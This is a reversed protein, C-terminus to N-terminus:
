TTHRKGNAQMSARQLIFGPTFQWHFDKQWLIEEGDIRKIYRGSYGSDHSYMPWELSSVNFPSGVEWVYISSRQKRGETEIDMDYMSSAVVEVIGDNDIDAISPSAQADVETVKPFGNIMSGDINWAYVGGLGPQKGDPTMIGNGASVVVDLSGDCNVDGIAPSHYDNWITEQPWGPLINGQFDFIYTKPRNWDFWNDDMTSVVIEPFGDNNIDGWGSGKIFGKVDVGLEAAVNTFSGDQNSMFLECAQESGHTESGVFLDLWGDNNFDAWAGTQTSNKSLLFAAM